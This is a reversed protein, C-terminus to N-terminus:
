GLLYNKFDGERNQFRWGKGTDFKGFEYENALEM